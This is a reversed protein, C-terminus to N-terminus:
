SSWLESGILCCEVVGLELELPDSARKQGGHASVCTYMCLYMFRLFILLFNHCDSFILDSESHITKGIDVEQQDCECGSKTM